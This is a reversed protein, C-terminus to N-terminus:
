EELLPVLLQIAQFLTSTDQISVNQKNHYMELCKFVVNLANKENQNIVSKVEKKDSM